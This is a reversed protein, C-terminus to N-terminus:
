TEEPESKGSADTQDLKGRKELFDALDSIAEDLKKWDSDTFSDNRFLAKASHKRLSKVTLEHALRKAEAKKM